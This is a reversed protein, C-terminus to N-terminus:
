SGFGISHHLALVRIKPDAVVYHELLRDGFAGTVALVEGLLVYCRLVITRM